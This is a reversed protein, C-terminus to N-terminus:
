VKKESPKQNRPKGWSEFNGWKFLACFHWGLPIFICMLAKGMWKNNKGRLVGVSSINTRLGNFEVLNKGSKRSSREM